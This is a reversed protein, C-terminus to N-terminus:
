PKPADPSLLGKSILAERIQSVGEILAPRREDPTPLRETLLPVPPEWDNAYDLLTAIPPFWKEHRITEEVAYEWAEDGLFDCTQRYARSRAAIEKPDRERDSLLLALRAMGAAFAKDTM